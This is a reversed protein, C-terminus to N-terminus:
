RSDVVDEAVQKKLCISKSRKKPSAPVRLFCLPSFVSANEDPYGGENRRQNDM